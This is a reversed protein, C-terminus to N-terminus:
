LVAGTMWRHLYPEVSKSAILKGQGTLFELPRM